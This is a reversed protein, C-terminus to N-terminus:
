NFLQAETDIEATRDTRGVALLRLSGDAVAREDEAREVADEIGSLERDSLGELARTAGLLLGDLGLVREIVLDENVLEVEFGSLRYGYFPVRGGFPDADADDLGLRDATFEGDEFLGTASQAVDAANWALATRLAAIRGLGGVVVPEDEPVVRAIEAVADTRDSQDLYVSPGDGLWCAADVGDDAIPLDRPEGAAVRVREAVGAERVSERAATVGGEPVIRVVEAGREALWTATEGDGDVLAIRGTEPLYRDLTRRVAN